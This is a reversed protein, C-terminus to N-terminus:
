NIRKNNMDPSLTVPTRIKLSCIIHLSYMYSPIKYSPHPRKKLFPLSIERRPDFVLAVAAM